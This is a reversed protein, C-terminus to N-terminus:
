KIGYYLLKQISQTADTGPRMETVIWNDIKLKIEILNFFM